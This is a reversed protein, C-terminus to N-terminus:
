VGFARELDALSDELHGLLRQLHPVSRRCGILGFDLNKDNSVLTINLALNDMVISVPYDGSMRAGCWYMPQRPGPVNSIVVNFPPPAAAVYGPVAGLGLPAIMLASLALAETRPLSAFVEKNGRMSASIAELRHGPDEVDTALSCLVTGVMNGGASSDGDSRMNVPVMSILPADPLANQEILYARLAGACMALVVDNVTVGAAAKVRQIREFPWSQAAFRRAGGIKVNFMTRPATFPLTLQQEILAANALKVTSPALGAVSGVTGAITRLLGPGEVAPRKSTRAPLAWPVRLETDDPDDSLARMTLKLASVGDVLSHHMKTYVAFRGEPLGEIVHAEWLPHHRDLLTSHLRSILELLDRIRGPTPLASRRLHYSVDVDDDVTWGINAIGGLLTAPRKRFMPSFDTLATVQEYLEHVFGDPGNAPPDFLQLAGVHMPHERSEGILFISDTPSLLEM